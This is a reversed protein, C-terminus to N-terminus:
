DVVKTFVSSLDTENAIIDNLVSIILEKNMASIFIPKDAIFYKGSLNEGTNCNKESLSFINQYTYLSACWKTGDTLEFYVDANVDDEDYKDLWEDFEFWIKAIIVIDGM